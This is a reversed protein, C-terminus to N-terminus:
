LSIWVVPQQVHICHEHRSSDCVWFVHVNFDKNSLNRGREMSRDGTKEGALFPLPLRERGKGQWDWCDKGVGRSVMAAARPFPPALREAPPEPGPRVVRGAEAQHHWIGPHGRVALGSREWRPLLRLWRLRPYSVPTLPCSPLSFCHSARALAFLGQLSIFASSEGVQDRGTVRFHHHLVM